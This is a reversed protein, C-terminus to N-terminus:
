IKSVLSGGDKGPDVHTLPVPVKVCQLQLSLPCTLTRGMKRLSRALRPKEAPCQGTGQVANFDLKQPNCFNITRRYDKITKPMSSRCSSSVRLISGTFPLLPHHLTLVARQELLRNCGLAKHPFLSPYLTQQINEYTFDVPLPYAPSVGARRNFLSYITTAIYYM